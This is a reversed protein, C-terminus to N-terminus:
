TYKHNEKFIEMCRECTYYDYGPVARSTFALDRGIAACHFSPCRPLLANGASYHAQRSRGEWRQKFTPLLISISQIKHFNEDRLNHVHKLMSVRARVSTHACVHRGELPHTLWPRYHQQEASSWSFLSKLVLRVAWPEHLCNQRWPPLPTPIHCHFIGAGQTVRWSFGTSYNCPLCLLVTTFCKFGHTRSHVLKAKRKSFALPHGKTQSDIQWSTLPSHTYTCVQGQNVFCEKQWTPQLEQGRTCTTWSPM